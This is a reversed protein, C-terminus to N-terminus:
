KGSVSPPSELFERIRRTDKSELFITRLRKEAIRKALTQALTWATRAARRSEEMRGSRSAACAKQTYYVMALHPDNEGTLPGVADLSGLADEPKGEALDLLSSAVAYKLLYEKGGRPAAIEQFESLYKRASEWDAEEVLLRVLWYLANMEYEKKGSNRALALARTIDRRAKETEGLCSLAVGRNRLFDAKSGQDRIHTILSIAKRCWELAARYDGIRQYIEGINNCSYAEVTRNGTERSIQLAETCMMLAKAFLGRQLCIIAINNICLPQFTRNGAERLMELSTQYHSQAKSYEEKYWCIVGLNMSIKAVRLRDHNKKDMELAEYYFKLARDYEGSFLYINGFAALSEAKLGVNNMEIAHRLTRLSYDYADNFQRKYIYINSLNKLAYGIKVLHNLSTALELMKEFDRQSRRYDGTHQYVLGREEHLELIQTASARTAPTRAFRLAKTYAAISEESAYLERAKRAAKLSYAFARRTDGGREFHHTLEGFREEAGGPDYQEIALGAELHLRRKTKEAIRSSLVKAFLSQVFAYRDGRFDKVEEIINAHIGEDIIDLLFGENTHLLTLLVDFEFESGLVSAVQFAERAEPSLREIKRDIAEQITPPIERLAGPGAGSRSGPSREMKRLFDVMGRIFFPNGKTIRHLEEISYGGRDGEGLLDGIMRIAEQEPLAGLLLNQFPKAKGMTILERRAPARRAEAPLDDPPRCTCIVAVRGSELNRSLFQLLALSTLDAWHVDEIVIFVGTTESLKLLLQQFAEFLLFRDREGANRKTTRQKARAWRPALRMLEALSAEPMSVSTILEGSWAQAMGHNLLDRFPFLPVDGTEDSCKGRLVLMHMRRAEEEVREVLFTKGVGMEGKVLCFQPQGLNARGLIGRLFDLEWKNGYFVASKADKEGRPSPPLDGGFRLPRGQDKAAYLAKDANELLSALDGADEPFVAYGISLSVSNVAVECREQWPFKEVHALIRSTVKEVEEEGAEPLIVVFEDGAWRCVIDEGRVADKLIRSIHVLIRDGALHGHEDNIGKFRNVDIMILSFKKGHKRCRKEEECLRLRFYRRNFLGTLDDMLVLQRLKRPDWFDPNGGPVKKVPKRRRVVASRM